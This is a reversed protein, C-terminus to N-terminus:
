HHAPGFTRQFPLFVDIFWTFSLPKQKYNFLLLVETAAERQEWSGPTPGFDLTWTKDSVKHHPVVKKQIEDEENTFHSFSRAAELGLM